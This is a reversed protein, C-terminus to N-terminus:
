DKKHRRQDKFKNAKYKDIVIRQQQTVYMHIERYFIQLEKAQNGESIKDRNPLKTTLRPQTFGAL